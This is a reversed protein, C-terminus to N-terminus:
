RRKRRAHEVALYRKREREPFREIAYRLTTRPMVSAHADLFARLAAGDRKGVERLMWGVAKHILDHEDDLLREAIRLSPPYDNRRIAGFTGLIAMRREWLSSSRALRELLRMGALGVPEPGLHDGILTPASADVLDWNNIYVTNALYARHVRSRERADGREFRDVLLLLAALREEHWPSRLLKLTEDYGLGRARRVAARLDPLRIGLFRDGEGYEGPGCKFYRALGAARVPDGLARIDRRVRALTPESM